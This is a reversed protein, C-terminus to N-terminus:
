AASSSAIAALLADVDRQRRLVHVRVSAPLTARREAFTRRKQRHTRISWWLISERSFFTVALSERPGEPGYLRARAVGRGLTRRLLRAFSRVWPPDLIILTDIRPLYVDMLKSYLGDCVWGDVAADLRAALQPRLEEYSTSDWGRRHRLADLEIVALGLRAGLERSLTTKGAGTVGWVSIRRGVPGRAVSM